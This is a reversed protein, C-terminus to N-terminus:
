LNKLWVQRYWIQGTGELQLSIIGQDARREPDDDYAVMFIRGNLLHVLVNGRAIIEAYNWDNEKYFQQYAIDATKGIITHGGGPTLVISEGNNAVVGRGQGEYLSGSNGNLDYQYGSIQWRNNTGGNPLGAADAASETTVGPPFMKGLPDRVAAFHNRAEANGNASNGLPAENDQRHAASLLRSRYHIGGNGGVRRFEVKLDFDKVIPSVGPLGIFHIHHQGSSNNVNDSHISGDDLMWVDTEGDWGNLTGDYLSVFGNMDDWAAKWDAAAAGGRGGGGALAASAQAPTLRQLSAQVAEYRDRNAFAVALEAQGVAEAAARIAAPSSPQALSAAVLDQQAAAAAAAFEPPAGTKAVALQQIINIEPGAAGGRGGPQAQAITLVGSVLSACLACSLNFAKM